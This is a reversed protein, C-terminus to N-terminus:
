CPKIPVGTRKLVPTGKKKALVTAVGDTSASSEKPASLIFIVLGGLGVAGTQRSPPSASMPSTVLRPRGAPAFSSPL